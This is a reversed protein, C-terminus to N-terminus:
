DRARAQGPNVDRSDQAARVIKAIMSRPMFRPANATLKNSLGPIVITKGAMMGDYGAQAVERASPLKKGFVLKSGELGAAAQFNSATPGPCFATVTVGSAAVENALAESFSLVYAKTAYYVAMLPGPLFAATSAVNLIRGGRRAIMGPLFRKSLHTLAAVNVQIMQLEVDLPTEIFPGYVGYGANNVLLDVALGLEAVRFVVGEVAASNSLDAAVAHARVGHDRQLSAAVDALTRATRAVLVVDHRHAACVRALELGIGSSAGTILATM